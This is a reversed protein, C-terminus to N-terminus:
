KGLVHIREYVGCTRRTANEWTANREKDEWQNPTVMSREEPHYASKRAESLQMLKEKASQMTLRHYHKLMFRRTALGLCESVHDTPPGVSPIDRHYGGRYEIVQLRSSPSLCWYNGIQWLETYTVVSDKRNILAKSYSQHRGSQLKRAQRTIKFPILKYQTTQKFVYQNIQRM